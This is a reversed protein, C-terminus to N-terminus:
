PSEAPKALQELFEDLTAYYNPPTWNHDADDFEIFKKNKSPAGEYLRKGFKFPIVEDVKSHSV